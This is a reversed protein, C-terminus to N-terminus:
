IGLNKFSFKIFFETGSNLTQNQTFDRKWEFSALFCEDNYYLGTGYYIPKIFQKKSSNDKKPRNLQTTINGQFAWYENIQIGLNKQIENLTSFKIFTPNTNLYSYQFRGYFKSFKYNLISESRRVSYKTSDLRLRQKIQVESVPSFSASLIYDTFPKAFGANLFSTKYGKFHYSQGIFVDSKGLSSHTLTGKFGYDIHNRGFIRDYGSFRLPSFLTTEDLEFGESDLNPVAKQGTKLRSLITTQVVPELIVSGKELPKLFPYGVGLVWKPIFRAFSQDSNIARDEKFKERPHRTSPLQYFDTRLDAETYAKIGGPVIFHREWGSDFTLRNSQPGYFQRTMAMDLSSHWTGKLPTDDLDYFHQAEILPLLYPTKRDRDFDRLGQFHYSSIGAYNHDWFGEHYLRSTLIDEYPNNFKYRKMYTKNSVKNIQFGGRMEDNYHIKFDSLIHGHLAYKDKLKKAKKAKIAKTQETIDPDELPLQLYHSNEAAKVGGFSGEFKGESQQMLFRYNIGLLAENKSTLYPTVIVDQSPSIVYYYPIGIIKRKGRNKFEPMLFGSKREKKPMPHYFYPTYFIPVKAFEFWAKKYTIDENAKDYVVEDAKIQWLPEEQKGPFLCLKCPSFAVKKLIIKNDKKFECFDAALRTEPGMLMRMDNVYGQNMDKKLEASSGFLVTGKKEFVQFPKKLYAINQGFDFQVEETSLVHDQNQLIEVHGFASVKQQTKNYILEDAKILSTDQKQEVSQASLIIGLFAALSYRLYSM